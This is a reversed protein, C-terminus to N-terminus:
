VRISDRVGSDVCFVRKMNSVFLLDVSESFTAIRLKHWTQRYMFVIESALM